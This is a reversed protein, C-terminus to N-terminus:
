PLTKQGSLKSPGVGEGFAFDWGVLAWAFSPDSPDYVVWRGQENFSVRVDHRRGTSTESATGILSCASGARLKVSWRRLTRHDVREWMTWNGAVVERVGECAPGSRAPEFAGQQWEVMTSQATKPTAADGGPARCDEIDSQEDACQELLCARTALDGACVLRCQSRCPLARRDVEATPTRSGRTGDLSGLVAFRGDELRHEFDGRLRDGAIEFVFVYNEPGGHDLIWSGEVEFRGRELGRVALPAEASTNQTSSFHKILHGILRCDEGLVIDLDYWRMQISRLKYDWLTNSRIKWRGVLEEGICQDTAQNALARPAAGSAAQAPGEEAGMNLLVWSLSLGAILAGGGGALLLWPRRKRPAVEDDLTTWRWQEAWQRPLEHLLERMNPYRHAVDLALARGLLRGIGAPFREVDVHAIGTATTPPLSGILAEHLSVAFSYQDSRADARGLRAEPAMYEPTGAVVFPQWLVLARSNSPPGDVQTGSRHRALGFDVVLVRGDEAIMVNEPKFDRHVVGAEHAHALGEGAQRFVALVRDREHGGRALWRRMSEGRVHEMSMFFCPVTLSPAGAQELRLSTDGFDYVGIVNPHRLRALAQAELAVEQAAPGQEIASYLKLAVERHLHLDEARCVVGRAGRGLLKILRYRGSVLLPPALGLEVLVLRSGVANEVDAITLTPPPPRGPQSTTPGPSHGPWSPLPPQAPM